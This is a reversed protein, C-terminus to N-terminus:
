YVDSQGALRLQEYIVVLLERQDGDELDTAEVAHRICTADGHTITRARRLTPPIRSSTITKRGMITAYRRSRSESGM